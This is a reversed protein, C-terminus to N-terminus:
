KCDETNWKNIKNFIRRAYFKSAGYRYLWSNYDSGYTYCYNKGGLPCGKCKSKLDEYLECLSCKGKLNKIEQRLGNPLECKSNCSPDNALIEWVKLSLRKAWRRNARTDKM